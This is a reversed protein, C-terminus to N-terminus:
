LPERVVESLPHPGRGVARLEGFQEGGEVDAVIEREGFQAAVKAPDDGIVAAGVGLFGLLGGELGKVKTLAQFNGHREVPLGPGQGLEAATKRAEAVSGKM